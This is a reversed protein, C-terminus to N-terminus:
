YKLTRSQASTHNENHRTWDMQIRDVILGFPVTKYTFKM